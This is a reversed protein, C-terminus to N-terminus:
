KAFMNSKENMKLSVQATPTPTKSIGGKRREEVWAEKEEEKDEDWDGLLDNMGIGLEQQARRSTVSTNRSEGAVTLLDYSGSGGVAM